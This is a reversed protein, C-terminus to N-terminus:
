FLRKAGSLGFTVEIYWGQFDTGIGSVPVLDELKWDTDILNLSYGGQLGIVVGAESPAKNTFFLASVGIDLPVAFRDLHAVENNIAQGINLLRSQESISIRSYQLHYRLLPGLWFREAPILDYGAQGFLQWQRFFVEGSNGDDKADIRSFSFGLGTQKRGDIKVTGFGLDLKLDELRNLGLDEAQQNLGSFDAQQGRLWMQFNYRLTDAQGIAVTNLFLLGTTIWLYINRTMSVQKQVLKCKVGLGQM